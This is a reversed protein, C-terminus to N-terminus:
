RRQRRFSARVTTGDPSSEIRFAGGSDAARSEMNAIGMGRSALQPDFGRGNDSVILEAGDDTRENRISLETAGGHRIANSVAERIVLLANDLINSDVAGVDDSLDIEWM